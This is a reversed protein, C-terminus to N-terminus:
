CIIASLACLETWLVSHSVIYFLSIEILFKLVPWLPLLFVSLQTQLHHSLKLSPCEVVARGSEM